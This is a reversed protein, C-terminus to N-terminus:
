ENKIASSPSMLLNLLILSSVAKQPKSGVILCDPLLIFIWPGMDLDPLM